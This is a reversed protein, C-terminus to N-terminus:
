GCKSLLIGEIQYRASSLYRRSPSSCNTIPPLEYCYILKIIIKKNVFCCHRANRKNHKPPRLVQTPTSSNKKKKIQFIM